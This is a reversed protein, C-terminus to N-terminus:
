PTRDGPHGPVLDERGNGAHLPDRADLDPLEAAVGPRVHRDFSHPLQPPCYQTCRFIPRLPHDDGVAGVGDLFGHVKQITREGGRVRDGDGAGHPVRRFQRPVTRRIQEGRDCHRGGGGRTPAARHHHHIIADHLTRFDHLRVRLLCPGEAGGVPPRETDDVFSLNEKVPLGAALRAKSGGGGRKRHIQDFDHRTCIPPMQIRAGVGARSPHNELSKAPPIDGGRHDWPNLTAQVRTQRDHDRRARQAPPHEIGVRVGTATVLQTFHSGDEGVMEGTWCARM